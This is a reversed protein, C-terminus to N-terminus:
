FGQQLRALAERVAAKAAASASTNSLSLGGILAPLAGSDLAAALAACGADTIQTYTLNLWKLKALGETPRSLAGAPLRPAVLAALGEDGFPNASLSLDELAPRRRLAPALAVLAVDDIGANGLILYKLRPLAGGGLAAALTSAGANGVHMGELYLSTVAPMAGAGLGEFLQVGDPGAAGRSEFLFNVEPEVLRLQELALLVSSLTGLTALDAATLGKRFCDVTKAERMKRCSRVTGGLKLCLAAAAEHDTKLQQMLAQTLAWLGHCASSLYAAARPDLPNRAQRVIHQLLEDPLSLMAIAPLTDVQDAAVTVQLAARFLSAVIAVENQPAEASAHTINCDPASESETDEPMEM